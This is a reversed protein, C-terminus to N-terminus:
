AMVGLEALRARNEDFWEDEHGPEPLIFGAKMTNASEVEKLTVLLEAEGRGQTSCARIGAVKTICCAAVNKIPSWHSRLLSSPRHNATLHVFGNL